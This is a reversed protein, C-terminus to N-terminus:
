GRGQNNALDVATMIPPMFIATPNKDKFEAFDIRQQDQRIAVEWCHECAVGDLRRRNNHERADCMIRARKALAHHRTFNPPEWGVDVPKKGISKREKARHKTIASLADEVKLDGSEVRKQAQPALELLKLYRSVTSNHFGLQESIQQQTMHKEDRLRGYARAKEMASLDSRHLNEILAIFLARTALDEGASIPVVKCPLMKLIGKSAVWRREGAEIYFHDYGKDPANRVLLDQLIGNKRISRALETVDGAEYRPNDPNPHLKDREVMIQKGIAM